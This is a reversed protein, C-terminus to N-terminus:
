VQRANPKEGLADRAESHIIVTPIPMQMDARAFKRACDSCPGSAKANDAGYCQGCYFEGCYHCRLAAPEDCCCCIPGNPFELDDRNMTKKEWNPSRMRM